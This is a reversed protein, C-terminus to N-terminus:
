FALQKLCSTACSLVPSDLQSSDMKEVKTNYIFANNLFLTIHTVTATGNLFDVPASAHDCFLIITEELKSLYNGKGYHFPDLTM